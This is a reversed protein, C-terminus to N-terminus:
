GIKRVYRDTAPHLTSPCFTVDRMPHGDPKRAVRGFLLLQHRQLACTLPREGTTQLVSANSVRSIYSPKMGWITRLCRNQFGDVRRRESKNLWCAALSYMLKSVVHSNFIEIKRKRGLSSHRWVRALGNFTRQAMGLRRSLEKTLRGDSALISGLYVM